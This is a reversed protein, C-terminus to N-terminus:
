TNMEKTYPTLKNNELVFFGANTMPYRTTDRLYDLSERHYLGGTDAVTFTGSKDKGQAMVHSHGAAIHCQHKVALERAVSLPIQSYNKPHCLRWMQGEQFVHIHDDMTVKYGTHIRTLGFLDEMGMLGKNLNIWRMEHNGRSYLTQEFVENNQAVVARVNEKEQQFSQTVTTRTWMSFNDCDWFDGPVCLLKIGLEKAVAYLRIQLALDHFPVHWDSAIICCDTDIDIPQRQYTIDAAYEGDKASDARRKRVRAACEDPHNKQWLKGKESQQQLRGADYGKQYARREEPDKHPM